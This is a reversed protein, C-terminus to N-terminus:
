LMAERKTNTLFKWAFKVITFGVIFVAYQVAEPMNPDIKDLLYAVLTAAAAITADRGLAAADSADFRRPPTGNM